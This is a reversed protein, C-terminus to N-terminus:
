YCSQGFCIIYSLHCSVPSVLCIVYFRIHQYTLRFVKLQFYGVYSVWVTVFRCDNYTSSRLRHFGDLKSLLVHYYDYSMSLIWGNWRWLITFSVQLITDLHLCFDVITLFLDLCLVGFPWFLSKQLTSEFISM